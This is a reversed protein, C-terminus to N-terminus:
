LNWVGPHDAAGFVSRVRDHVPDAVGEQIEQDPLQDARLDHLVGGALSERVLPNPGNFYRRAPNDPGPFPKIYVFDHVWIHFGCGYTEAGTGSAASKHGNRGRNRANRGFNRSYNLVFQAKHDIKAHDQLRNQPILLQTEGKHLRKSQLARDPGQHLLLKHLVSLYKPGM